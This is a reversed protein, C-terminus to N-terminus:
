FEGNALDLSIIGPLLSSEAKTTGNLLREVRSVRLTALLSSEAM